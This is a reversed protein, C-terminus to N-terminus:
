RTAFTHGMADRVHVIDFSGPHRERHTVLGVRGLNRGGTVMVLNGQDFKIHDKIRGTAIDLQITDNVQLRCLTLLEACVLISSHKPLDRFRLSINRASFNRAHLKVVQFHGQTLNTACRRMLSKCHKQQVFLNLPHSDLTVTFSELWQLFM